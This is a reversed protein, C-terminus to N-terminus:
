LSFTFSPHSFVSLSCVSFSLCLSFLPPFFSSGFSPSVLFSFSAAWNAAARAVPENNHSTPLTSSSQHHTPSLFSLQLAHPLSLGANPLKSSILSLPFVSVAILAQTQILRLFKIPGFTAQHNLIPSHIFHCFHLWLITLIAVALSCHDAFVAVRVGWVRGRSRNWM